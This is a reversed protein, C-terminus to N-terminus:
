GDPVYIGIGDPFALDEAMVEPPQPEGSESFRIRRVTGEPGPGFDEGIVIGIDAYYLTGSPDVGLGLPTGTTFTREGLQEGEPPELVTRVFGAEADIEGIVGNIVSSVYFGGDPKAVVANPTVLPDAASLFQERTVADALPAGTADERGCGGDAEDSTPYPGSYRL